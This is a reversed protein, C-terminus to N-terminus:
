VCTNAYFVVAAGTKTRFDTVRSALKGNIANVLALTRNPLTADQDALRTILPTRSIPPVNFM